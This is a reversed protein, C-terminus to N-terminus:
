PQQTTWSGIYALEPKTISEFNNYGEVTIEYGDTDAIDSIEISQPYRYHGHVNRFEAPFGQPWTYRRRQSFDFRPAYQPQYINSEDHYRRAAEESSTPNTQRWAQPQSVSAPTTSPRQACDGYCQRESTSERDNSIYGKNNIHGQPTWRSSPGSSNLTQYPPEMAGQTTSGPADTSGVDQSLYTSCELREDLQKTYCEQNPNSGSGYPNPM